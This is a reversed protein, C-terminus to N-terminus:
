SDTNARFYLRERRISSGDIARVLPELERLDAGALVKLVADLHVALPDQDSASDAKSELEPAPEADSGDGPDPMSGAQTREARMKELFEVAERDRGLGFALIAALQQEGGSLDALEMLFERAGADPLTHGLALVANLQVRVDKDKEALKILSRAVSKNNWGCAGLARVWEPRNDAHKEKKLGTKALSLGRASGFQELAVAVRARTSHGNRDAFDKLLDLYRVPSLNGILGITGDTLPRAGTGGLEWFGMQQEIFEVAEDFDSFMVRAVDGVDSWSLYRKKLRSIMEDLESELLGRGLPDRDPVRATAGYLLRRPPRADELSPPANEMGALRAAEAFCWSLEETSMEWPCSLLLTGDAAIWLQQPLAIADEENPDLWADMVEVLNEHHDLEETDGFDPLKRKNSSAKTWAAVNITAAAQQALVKNGFATKRLFESRAEDAFGISIFLVRQQDAALQQADKLRPTWNLKGQGSALTALALFALAVSLLRSRASCVFSM